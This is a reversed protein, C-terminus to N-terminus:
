GSYDAALHRPRLATWSAAAPGCGSYVFIQQSLRSRQFCLQQLLRQLRPVAAAPDLLQTAASSSPAAAAGVSYDLHSHLGSSLLYFQLDVLDIRRFDNAASKSAAAALTILVDVIRAQSVAMAHIMLADLERLRGVKHGLWIMTIKLM